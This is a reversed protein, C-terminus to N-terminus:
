HRTSNRYTAEKACFAYQLGIILQCKEAHNEPKLLALGRDVYEKLDHCEKDLNWNNRDWAEDVVAYEAHNISM